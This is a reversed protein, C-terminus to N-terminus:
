SGPKTAPAAGKTTAPAAAPAAPPFLDKPMPKVEIKARKREETLLNKQLEGAYANLIYPKNQEFDVPRGEKRDTVQILHYGYPTEIPESVSGKKLRFAVDTFEPIFGSSLTFYDLDGGAGGANAPDESYKNAAQAFNVANADIQGKITLLKQKIKEKEAAPADPEVKLLIHSARVQTGYFLDRNASVYRKLEADTAKSKVYESWRIRNELEKRVTDLSTNDELLATALDRGDAKLQQELRALEEDIKAPPVAIKQRNLFITLLKTNVLSDVADRYVQERNENAPIPYRSLFNIVEGKTVQEKADEDAITAVVDNAGAVVPTRGAPIRATPGAPATPEIQARVAGTGASLGLFFLSLIGAQARRRM